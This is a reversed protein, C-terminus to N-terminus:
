KGELTKMISKLSKEWGDMCADYQSKPVMEGLQRMSTSYAKLIDLLAVRLDDATADKSITWNGSADETAFVKGNSARFSMPYSLLPAINTQEM